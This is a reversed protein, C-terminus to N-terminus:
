TTRQPLTGRLLPSWPILTKRGRGDRGDFDLDVGYADLAYRLQESANELQKPIVRRILEGRRQM